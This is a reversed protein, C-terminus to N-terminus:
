NPKARKSPGTATKPAPRKKSGGALKPQLPPKLNTALGLRKMNLKRLDAGHVAGAQVQKTILDLEKMHQEHVTPDMPKDGSEIQSYAKDPEEFVITTYLYEKAAIHLALSHRIDGIKPTPAESAIALAKTREAAGVDGAGLMKKLHGDGLAALLQLQVVEDFSDLVHYFGKLDILGFIRAYLWSVLEAADERALRAAEERQRDNTELIQSSKEGYAPASGMLDDASIIGRFKRSIVGCYFPRLMAYEQRYTPPTSIIGTFQDTLPELEELPLPMGYELAMEVSKPQPPETLFGRRKGQNVERVRMEDVKDLLFDLARELENFAEKNQAEKMSSTGRRIAESIEYSLTDRLPRTQAFMKTHAGKFEAHLTNLDALSLRRALEFASRFPSPLRAKTQPSKARLPRMGSILPVDKAYEPAFSQHNPSRFVLYSWYAAVDGPMPEFHYSELGTRRNRVFRLQGEDPNLHQVAIPWPTAAARDAMRRELRFYDTFWRVWDVHVRFVVIPFLHAYLAGDIGALREIGNKFDSRNCHELELVGPPLVATASTSMASLAQRDRAGEGSVIHYPAARWVDSFTRKIADMFADDHLAFNVQEWADHMDLDIVDILPDGGSLDDAAMAGTAKVGIQEM